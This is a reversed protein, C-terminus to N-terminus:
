EKRLVLRIMYEGSQIGRDDSLDDTRGANMSSHLTPTDQDGWVQLYNGRQYSAGAVRLYVTVSTKGQLLQREFPIEVWQFQRPADGDYTTIIHDDLAIRAVFNASGATNMLIKLAARQYEEIQEPLCIVKKVRATDSTLFIRWEEKDDDSGLEIESQAQRLIGTGECADSNSPSDLSQAIGWRDSEYDLRMDYLFQAMKRDLDAATVVDDTARAIIRRMMEVGLERNLRYIWGGAERRLFANNPANDLAALFYRATQCTEWFAEHGVLLAPDPADCQEQTNKLRGLEYYYWPNAPDVFVAQKLWREADDFARRSEDSEGRQAQRDAHQYVYSGLAFYYDGANHDYQLAQKAPLMIAELDNDDRYGQAVLAGTEQFQRHLLFAAYTRSTWFLGGCIALTGTLVLAYLPLRATPLPIERTRCSYSSSPPPTSNRGITPEMPSNPPATNKEEREFHVVVYTLAAIVTFTVTNSPIHLNFDVASHVAMSVLASIGGLGIALPWRSRQRRWATLTGRGYALIGWGVIVMGVVGTEVWLQFYDNEAHTFLLDSPFKQYRAYVHSFAGLGTGFGPFDKVIALSDKWVHMRYQFSEDGIPKALAGLRQLLMEPSAFVAIGFIVVIGVLIIRVWKRLLRRNYALACFGMMGVSFSIIGGRSGSLVIALGMVAILVGILIAKLYKDDVWKLLARGTAASQSELQFLLLGFALPLLLELYGAFHNHNVFTGAIRAQGVQSLGYAAEVGGMILLVTLIRQIQAQTRIVNTVLWFVLTYAVLKGLETETAQSIVSLPLRTPLSAFTRSAAEAYVRVTVPSLLNAVAVPWPFVQGMIFVIFIILAGLAPPWTIHFPVASQYSRLTQSAPKRCRQRSAQRRFFRQPNFVLSFGWGLMLLGALTELLTVSVETVGGSALPLYILLVILGIELAISIM